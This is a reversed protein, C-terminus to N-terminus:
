LLRCVLDSRSQLESTHEESRHKTHLTKGTPSRPDAYTRTWDAYMRIAAESGRTGEGQAPDTTILAREFLAGLAVFDGLDIREAYTYILNSIEIADNMRDPSWPTEPNALGDPPSGAP